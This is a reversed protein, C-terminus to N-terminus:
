HTSAGYFHMITRAIGVFDFDHLRIQIQEGDQMIFTMVGEDESTKEVGWRVPRLADQKEEAM